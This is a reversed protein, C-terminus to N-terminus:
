ESPILPRERICEGPIMLRLATQPAQLLRDEGVSARPIIVDLPAPTPQPNLSPQVDHLLIISGDQAANLVTNTVAEVTPNGGFEAPFDGGM